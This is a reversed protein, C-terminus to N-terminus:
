RTPEEDLLGGSGTTGTALLGPVAGGTNTGPSVALRQGIRGLATSRLAPRLASGFFPLALALQGAGPVAMLAGLGTAAGSSTMMGLDLPSFNPVAEKLVRTIKPFENAFEAVARLEGTLPRGSNLQAALKTASVDEGVLAKEVSYTKAIEQRSKRFSDVLGTKGQRVLEREIADELASAMKKWSDGVKGKGNRFAKDANERILQIATVGSDADFVGKSALEEAMKIAKQNPKSLLDFDKQVNKLDRVSKSIDRRFMTDTVIPGQSRLENYASLQQKRLASLTEPTIPAGEEMGLARNVLNNTNVQNAKTAQQQTKIKGGFGELIGSAGSPNASAPDVVYGSEQAKQAIQQRRTPVGRGVGRLGLLSPLGLIGTKVLTAGLVDDPDGTVEGATDAFQELAQFPKAVAESVVRGAETRPQYTLADLTGEVAEKGSKGGPLLGAAIGHLGAPIAALAGTGINAGSELLGSLTRRGEYITPFSTPEVQAEPEVYERGLKQMLQAKTTGEPVNKVITGDPLRVDPM